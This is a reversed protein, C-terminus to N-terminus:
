YCISTLFLRVAKVKGQWVAQMQWRTAASAGLPTENCYETRVNVTMFQNYHHHQLECVIYAANAIQLILTVQKYM